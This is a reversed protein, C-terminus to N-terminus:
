NAKWDTRAVSTSGLRRAPKRMAIAPAARARSVMRVPAPSAPAAPTDGIKFVGVAQALHESQEQLSGAAAAAQEVLAANQQTVEDMQTIAQNIQEIGSSQEQSALTIEGILDSVRQVSLVVEQMTSGAQDVLKSGTGVKDVSDNILATIEKAAAASRHALNRVESAVVAFGRGQEGARAAEVAANLALINTQFAISDIVTIIDVIKRASDNIAGMTQVVERVVAGGKVAVESASVALESAQRAHDANQKVTSTLEEMSSATEELSSAQQETRSSLDLNGSAIEGAATAITHSGSRVEGVISQLSANMDKMARLLQGMENTSAVEVTQTLDGSAVSRAIRVAYDLPATISRVLWVGIAAAALLSLVILSISVNRFREYTRQSADYEAKGIDLQMQILENLSSRVGAFSSEMPGQVLATVTAVDKDRAAVVAPNLIQELFRQRAQVFKAALVKEDPALYTAMYASWEKNILAKEREIGAAVTPLQDPDAGVARALALQNRNLARIVQDLQGMAILRDQYITKVSANTGGLSFLGMLGIVLMMTALFLLAFALRAKITTNQLM